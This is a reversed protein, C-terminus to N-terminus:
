TSWAEKATSLMRSPGLVQDDRKGRYPARRSIRRPTRQFRYLAGPYTFDRGLDDHHVPAPFGSGVLQRDALVEDPTCIVGTSPAREQAAM